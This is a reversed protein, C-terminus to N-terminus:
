AGAAQSEEAHETLRWRVGLLGVDRALLDVM